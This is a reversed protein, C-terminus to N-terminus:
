PHDGHGMPRQAGGLHRRHHGLLGRGFWQFVIQEEGSEDADLVRYPRFHGLRHGSAVAGPMSTSIIV